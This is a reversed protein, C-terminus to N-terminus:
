LAFDEQKFPIALWTYLKELFYYQSYLFLQEGHIEYGYLTRNNEVVVLQSAWDKQHKSQAMLKIPYYHIVLAQKSTLAIKISDTLPTVQKLFNQENPNPERLFLPLKEQLFALLSLPSLQLLQYGALTDIIVTSMPSEASLMIYCNNIITLSQGMCYERLVETIVFGSKTLSGDSHLLGKETLALKAAQWINESTIFCDERTPLGILLEGQFADLLLYLEYISFYDTRKM